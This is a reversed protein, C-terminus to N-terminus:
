PKLFCWYYVNFFCFITACILLSILDVMKIKDEHSMTGKEESCEKCTETTIKSSSHYRKWCLIIGYELIALLITSQSGLAWIEIFSFGRNEPANVSTYINTSILQLTSCDWEEQCRFNLHIM